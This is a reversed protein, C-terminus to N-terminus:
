MAQENPNNFYKESIEEITRICEERAKIGLIVKLVIAKKENFDKIEGLLVNQAISPNLSKILELYKVRHHSPIEHEDWKNQLETLMPILYEETTKNNIDVNIM